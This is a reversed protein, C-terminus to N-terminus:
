FEFGNTDSGFSINNLKGRDTRNTFCKGMYNDLLIAECVVKNMKYTFDKMSDNDVLNSIEAAIVKDKKSIINMVKPSEFIDRLLDVYGNEIAKIYSDRIKSTFSGETEVLVDEAKYKSMSCYNAKINNIEERDMSNYLKLLYKALNEWADENIWEFDIDVNTKSVDVANPNCTFFISDKLSTDGSSFYIDKVDTKELNFCYFFGIYAPNIFERNSGKKAGNVGNPSQLEKIMEFDSKSFSGEDIFFTVSDNNLSGVFSVEGKNDKDPRGAIFNTYEFHDSESLYMKTIINILTSKMVSRNHSAIVDIFKLKTLEAYRIAEKKLFLEANDGMVNNIVWELDYELEVDDYISPNDIWERRLKLRYERNYRRNFYLEGAKEFFFDNYKSGSRDVITVSRSFDLESIKKDKLDQNSPGYFLKYGGSYKDEKLLLREMKGNSTERMFGSYGEKSEIKVEEKQKITPIELVEKEEFRDLYKSSISVTKIKDDVNEEVYDVFGNWDEISIYPNNFYMWFYKSMLSNSRKSDELPYINIYKEIVKNYKKLFLAQKVENPMDRQSVNIYRDVNGIVDNKKGCVELSDIFDAFVEVLDEFVFNNEINELNYVEYYSNKIDTNLAYDCQHNDVHLMEIKGDVGNENYTYKAQLDLLMDFEKIYLHVRNSKSVAYCVGLEILGHVIKGLRSNRDNYINDVDIDIIVVGLENYGKVPNYISGIDGDNKSIDTSYVRKGLDGKKEDAWGKLIATGVNNEIIFNYIDTKSAINQM